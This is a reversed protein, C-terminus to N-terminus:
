TKAMSFDVRCVVYKEFDDTGLLGGGPATADVKWVRGNRMVIVHGSDCRDGAKAFSTSFDKGDTGPIRCCDFMWSHLVDAVLCILHYYSKLPTPVYRWTDMCMPGEKTADPALEGLKLKKRFLM